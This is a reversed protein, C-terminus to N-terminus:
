FDSLWVVTLILNSKNLISLPEPFEHFKALLNFKVDLQM